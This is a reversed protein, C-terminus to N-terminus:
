DLLEGRMRRYAVLTQEGCGMGEREDGYGFMMLWDKGGSRSTYSKRVTRPRFGPPLQDLWREIRQTARVTGIQETGAAVNRTPPCITPQHSWVAPPASSRRRREHLRFHPSPLFPPLPAPASQSSPLPNPQQDDNPHLVQVPPVPPLHLPQPPPPLILPPILDDFNAPPPISPALVPSAPPSAPVLELPCAIPATQAHAANVPSAARPFIPVTQAFDPPPPTRVGRFSVTPTPNPPPTFPFPQRTQAFDPSPTLIGSGQPTQSMSSFIPATQALLSSTAPPPATTTTTQRYAYSPSDSSRNRLSYPTSGASSHNSRNSAPSGNRPTPSYPYRPPTVYRTGPSAPPTANPDLGLLARQSPTLPIDPINDQGRYLPYLAVGVNIIPILGVFFFAFPLYSQSAPSFLLSILSPNSQLFSHLFWLVGILGANWIIRHVNSEDFTSAKQRRTIQDFNPHRWRGPSPTATASPPASTNTSQPTGPNFTRPTITATAQKVLAGATNM